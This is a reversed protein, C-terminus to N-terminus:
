QTVAIFLLLLHKVLLHHRDELQFANWKSTKIQLIAQQLNLNFLVVLLVVAHHFVLINLNNHLQYM